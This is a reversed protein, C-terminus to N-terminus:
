ILTDGRAVVRYCPNPGFQAALQAPHEVNWVVFDARKGVALTGVEAELGLAQAANRTAGALAEEPTLGFLVCAMNLMLQMSAFPSSGPNCDSAIAIPVGNERLAAVPPRQTERLFYFAGPLLVAVGGSRALAEVGSVDLYELHDASLAGYRAGLATGGMNSLQEAHLKVPLRHDRAAALVRETQQLGFGINECFVDVADALREHAVVPLVEDCVFDIYDDARGRYEEPLAHAGLFTTVIHMGSTGAANRAVRLMRLETALDLGYGSKIEVTTVGERRLAALRALTGQLLSDEDAGRTARVTALIGGGARAIDAYSRGQQRQEFEDARQGAYVLHTHCDILGPTIWRGALGEHSASAYREPLEVRLGTWAIREGEVVLAADEVIGYPEDGAQMTALNCNRWVRTTSLTAM